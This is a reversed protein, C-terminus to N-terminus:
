LLYSYKSACAYLIIYIKIYIYIYIIICLTVSGYVQRKDGHEMSVVRGYGQEEMFSYTAKTANFGPSDMRGDGSLVVGGAFKIDDTIADRM